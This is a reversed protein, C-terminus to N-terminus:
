HSKITLSYCLQCFKFGSRDLGSAQARVVTCVAEQTIPDLHHSFMLCPPGSCCTPFLTCNQKISDPFAVSLPYLSLQAKPPLSAPLCRPLPIRPLPGACTFAHHYRPVSASRYATQNPLGSLILLSTLCPGRRSAVGPLTGESHTISVM